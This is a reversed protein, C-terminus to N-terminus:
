KTSKNSSKKSSKVFVVSDDSESNSSLEKKVEVKVSKKGSPEGEQIDREMKLLRNLTEKKEQELLRRRARRRAIHMQILEQDCHPCVMEYPDYKAQSSTGAKGQKVRGTTTSSRRVAPEEDSSSSEESSQVLSKVRRAKTIAGRRPRLPTKAKAASERKGPGGSCAGKSRTSKNLPWVLHASRVPRGQERATRDDRLREIAETSPTESGETSRNASTLPMSKEDDSENTRENSPHHTSVPTTPESPEAVPQAVAETRDAVPQSPVTVPPSSPGDAPTPQTVSPSSPGVAPTPQIVRPSSPGVAPAPAPTPQTITPTADAAHVTHTVPLPAFRTFKRVRRKKSPLNMMVRLSVVLSSSVWRSQHIFVNIFFM